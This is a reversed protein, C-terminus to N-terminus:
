VELGVARMLAIANSRTVPGPKLRYDFALAGDELHDEFHVNAALPALDDAIRTLALDHSTVLGIAGRNVLERVVAEAGVLRDASNTGHFIEDLLFLLWPRGGALDMIQRVRTIEAYFRSRGEHLSDQVRISAGVALPSLRLGRARVPAGAQALVANIGATRLLTSKGSMNSGSVVLMRHGADFRVDNRVSRSEPILPHGLGEAEFLPGDEVLSPFPDTPNEFAYGSLAMLAEVEGLSELAAGIRTGARRRWAGLAAGVHVDWMLLFALPAFFANRRSDRLEMLGRLRAIERSPRRDGGGFAEWRRQLLPSAFSEAELRAMLESLTDLERSRQDMGRVIPRTWRQAWRHLGIVLLLAALFLERSGGSSLWYWLTVLAALSAAAAAARLWAPVEAVPAQAWARLSPSDV